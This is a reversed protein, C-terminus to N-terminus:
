CWGPSYVGGFNNPRGQKVRTDDTSFSPVFKRKYEELRETLKQVKKPMKEALNHHETPDDKLNYLYISDPRWSVFCYPDGLKGDMEIPPVRCAYEGCAGKILKYDDVRIAECLFPQDIVNYVFEKRPSPANTSLARWVDIGDVEPDTIEGGALGVLTPYWDVFHIMGNYRYGSNPLMDGHVFGVVRTGGEFLQLKSGLLPWNSSQSIASQAGGNDSSFVILTNKWMGNQKLAEVIKAVGDDIASVMGLLTRRTENKMSPYMDFYKQPVQVPTHVSQYAVYLFMPNTKDHDEIFEVAKDTYLYTSYIGSKTRDPDMNDHLDLYGAHSHEYHDGTALYFGYFKDFGRRNPTYAEKCFGLNWKGVMYTSYGLEKMRGPLLTLNLQLGHPFYIGLQTEFHLRYPYYGSM